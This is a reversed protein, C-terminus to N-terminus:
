KIKKRRKRYMLLKVVKEQPNKLKKEEPKQKSVLNKILLINKRKRLDNELTWLEETPRQGDIIGCVSADNM